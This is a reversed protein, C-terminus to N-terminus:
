RNEESTNHRHKIEKVYKFIVGKQSKSDVTVKRQGTASNGYEYGKM